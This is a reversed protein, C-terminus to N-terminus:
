LGRRRKRGAPWCARQKQVAGEWKVLSLVLCLFCKEQLGAAGLELSGKRMISQGCIKQPFSRRGAQRHLKWMCVVCESLPVQTQMAESQERTRLEGPPPMDFGVQILFCVFPVYTNRCPKGCNGSGRRRRQFLNQQWLCLGFVASIKWSSHFLLGEVIVIGGLVVTHSVHSIHYIM